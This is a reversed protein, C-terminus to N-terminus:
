PVITNTSLEVSTYGANLEQMRESCSPRISPPMAEQVEAWDDAKEGWLVSQIDASGM